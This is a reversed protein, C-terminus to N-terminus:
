YEVVARAFSIVIMADPLDTVLLNCLGMIMPIHPGGGGQGYRGRITPQETM